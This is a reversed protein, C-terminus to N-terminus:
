KEAPETLRLFEDVDRSILEIISQWFDREALDVGLHKHAIDPVTMRGTDRLLAVYRDAFAAGEELAKAYVGYSFLYGFTYPFNYFPTDTLYFHLKSAWFYPHYVSLTGNFAAKQAELMLQNLEETSLLGKPRQKYFETEFIFRAHINMFYAVSRSIKDELLAIREEESSARKIAADAVIMEAFTSATEALNMPYDQILAPLDQMVHSHYAHGLEHALTAVSQLSGDFTMFIRSEGTKPFTTCFGGARKGPRDESEVWAQALAMEAFDALHPSFHRFQDCVFAAAEPYAMKPVSDSIPAEVDFWALKDVGILQAKRDLYKQLVHKSENVASWMADLIPHSIRNMELPEKLMSNWGRSRYLNIRYGAIHNLISACLDAVEAWAAEYRTFVHMRVDRDPDSLRNAAQEASLETVKGDLEVPIRLRGSISNYLEGWAHYGDVSLANIVTEMAAPLKDTAQQRREQLAFSVPAVAPNTILSNWKTSDLRTLLDDLHTYLSDLSAGLSSVRGYLVEAKTDSVDQSVLCSVFAEAERWRTTLDQVTDILEVWETETIQNPDSTLDLRNATSTIDLELQDLYDAFTPSSSGGPFFNDLNWVQSLKSTVYDDRKGVIITGRGAM